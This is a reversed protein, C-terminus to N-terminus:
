RDRLGTIIWYALAAVIWGAAPLMLAVYALYHGHDVYVTDPIRYCGASGSIPRCAGKGGYIGYILGREADPHPVGHILGVALVVCIIAVSFTISAFSPLAFTGTRRDAPSKRAIGRTSDKWAFFAWLCMIGFMVADALFAKM